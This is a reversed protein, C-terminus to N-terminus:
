YQGNVFVLTLDRGTEIGRRQCFIDIVERCTSNVTAEKIIIISDESVLNVNIAFTLSKGYFEPLLM